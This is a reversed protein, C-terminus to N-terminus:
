VVQPSYQECYACCALAPARKALTCEGHLACRFVKLQVTGRCEACEIRRLEEGRLTCARGWTTLAELQAATIRVCRPQARGDQMDLLEQLTAEADCGPCNQLGCRSCTM